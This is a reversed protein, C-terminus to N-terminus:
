IKNSLVAISVEPYSKFYNKLLGKNSYDSIVPIDGMETVKSVNASLRDFDRQYDEEYQADTNKAPVLDDVYYANSDGKM